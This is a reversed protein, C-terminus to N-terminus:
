EEKYCENDIINKLIGSAKFKPVIKEPVYVEEGTKPNRAKRAPRVATAFSGFGVISTKSDYILGAIIGSILSDIVIKADKKTIDIDDSMFNILDTKNM